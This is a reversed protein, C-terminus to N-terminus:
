IHTIGWNTYFVYTLRDTQIDCTVLMYAKHLM